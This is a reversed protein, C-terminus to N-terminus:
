GVGIEERGGSPRWVRANYSVNAVVKGAADRVTAGHRSLMQAYWEDASRIGTVRARIARQVDDLTEFREQGDGIDATYPGTTM